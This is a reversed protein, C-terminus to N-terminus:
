TFLEGIIEEEINYKLEGCEKLKDFASVEGMVIDWAGRLIQIGNRNQTIGKLKLDSIGKRLNTFKAFSDVLTDLASEIFCHSAIHVMLTLGELCPKYISESQSIEFTMTLVALAGRWVVNFMPGIYLPSESRHWRKAETENRQKAQTLTAQIQSKYLDARQARTLLASNPM